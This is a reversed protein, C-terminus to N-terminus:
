NEYTKDLNERWLDIVFANELSNAWSIQESSTQLKKDIILKNIINIQNEILSYESKVFLKYYRNNEHIEIFSKGRTVM